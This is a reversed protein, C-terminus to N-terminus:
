IQLNSVFLEVHPIFRIYTYADTNSLHSQKIHDIRISFIRYWNDSMLENSGDLKLNKFPLLYYYEPNDGLYQIVLEKIKSLDNMNNTM